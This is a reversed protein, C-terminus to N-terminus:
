HGNLEKFKTFIFKSTLGSPSKTTLTGPEDLIISGVNKKVAELAVRAKFASSFNRHTQKKM